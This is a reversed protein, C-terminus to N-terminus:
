RETGERCTAKVERERTLRLDNPHAESWAISCHFADPYTPFEGLVIQVKGGGGIVESVWKTKPRYPHVVGNVVEPEIVPFRDPDFDDGADEGPKIPTALKKQGLRFVLDPSIPHQHKDRAQVHLHIIGAGTRGTKGLRTDPTVIDGVKVYSASTHLYQLVDGDAQQVAITGWHGGGARVVVGNIGAKFDLPSPPQGPTPRSSIDVGEHVRPKENAKLTYDSTITFPYIGTQHTLIHDNDDTQYIRTVFPESNRISGSPLGLREPTILDDSSADSQQALLRGASSAIIWGLVIIRRHCTM